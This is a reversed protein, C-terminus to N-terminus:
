DPLKSLAERMAKTEAAVSPRAAVRALWAKLWPQGESPPLGFAAAFSVPLLWSVDSLTFPEGCLHARGDRLAHELRDFAKAIVKASEAIRGQDRTAPDPKRYTEALLEAIAGNMLWDADDEFLRARARAKAGVPLLPPAPMREELYELIVTSDYLVLDEDFLTPVQGRPNAALLEQPKCLIANRSIPLQEDDFPLGKERLAIRVKASFPSLAHTYLKM